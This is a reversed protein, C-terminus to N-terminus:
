RCSRFRRTGGASFSVADGPLAAAALRGASTRALRTSVATWGKGSRVRVPLASQDAVLTGDPEATVLSTETTAASVVQSQGTRKALAVAASEAQQAATSADAGVLALNGNPSNQPPQWAAGLPIPTNDDAAAPGMGTLTVPGLLAACSSVVILARCLLRRHRM